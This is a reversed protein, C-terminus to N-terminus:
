RGSCRATGGQWLSHARAERRGDEGPRVDRRLSLRADQGRGGRQRPRRLGFGREAGRRRRGRVREARLALLGGEHEAGGAARHRLHPLCVGDGRGRGRGAGGGRARRRRLVGHPDPVRRRRGGRADAAPRSARRALLVEHRLRVGARGGRGLVAAGGHARRLPPDEGGQAGRGDVGCVRGHGARVGAGRDGAGKGLIGHDLPALGALRQVGPERLGGRDERRAPSLGM